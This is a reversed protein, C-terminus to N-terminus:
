CSYIGRWTQDHRQRRWHKDHCKEAANNTILDDGAGSNISIHTGENVISDAGSTGKFTKGGFDGSLSFQYEGANSVVSVNSSFNDATLKVIKNEPTSLNDQVGSLEVQATGPLSEHYSVSKNDASLSYYSGTGGTYYAYSNGNSYTRWSDDLNDISTDVDDALSLQYDGSISVTGTVNNLAAANLIIKTDDISINDSAALNLGSITCLTETGSSADLKIIKHTNDLTAGSISERKYVIGGETTEWSSKVSSAGIGGIELSGAKIIQLDDSTKSISDVTEVLHIEDDTGFNAIDIRTVNASVDIINKGAGADISIENGNANITNEGAGANVTNEMIITISDNDAGTTIKNRISAAYITNAGDGANVTNASGFLSILDAGAGSNIVNFSGGSNIDGSYITNNGAGANITNGESITKAFGSISILDGNAGATISNSKGAAYITNM